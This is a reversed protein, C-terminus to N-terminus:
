ESRMIKGAATKALPETSFEVRTIRKYFTLKKNMEEIYAEVATQDQEKCYIKAAIKDNVAKVLVETVLPSRQLLEELEEPSVNEGSSLIILNKKRGTLYLYGDEDLYGLDGTHFWGDRMVAQTEMDNKYYGMMVHNGRICIEGDEIRLESGAGPLGVSHLKASDTSTNATGGGCMETMGYAQYISIGKERFEQLMQADIAAAGCAINKIGGLKESKGRKIDKSWMKLIAPVVSASDSKMQRLDRYMYKPSECINLTGGNTNWTLACGIGSMHYLPVVLFIKPKDRSINGEASNITELFHKLPAFLNKQSMMVGKSRGTTGSTFMIMALKEVDAGEALEVYESCGRYADMKELMSAYNDSFDPELKEYEGDSFVGVIDAFEIQYRINDLSEEINLPVAVGGAAMVGYLCVLFHYSNRGLIGFHKGEVIEEHKQLYCVFRRIDNVFELYSIQQVEADKYYQFAIDEKYNEEIFQLWQYVSAVM